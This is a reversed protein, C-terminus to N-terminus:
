EAPYSQKKPGNESNSSVKEAYPMGPLIQRIM